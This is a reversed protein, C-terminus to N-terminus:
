IKIDKNKLICLISEYSTLLGIEDTTFEVGFEEQIVAVLTITAVSDWGEVSNISAKEVANENLEPFVTLFCQKLKNQIDNM